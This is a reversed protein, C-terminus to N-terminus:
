IYNIIELDELILYDADKYQKIKVNNDFDDDSYILNLFILYKKYFYNM